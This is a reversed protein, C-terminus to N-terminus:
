KFPTSLLKGPSKANRPKASFEIGDAEYYAGHFNSPMKCKFVKSSKYIISIDQSMDNFDNIEMTNNTTYSSQTLHNIAELVTTKGSGNEGIFINLGSAPTTGDPLNIGTINENAFCRFNKITLDKVFM